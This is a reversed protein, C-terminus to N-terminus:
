MGFTFKGSRLGTQPSAIIGFSPDLKGNGLLRAVAFDEDNDLGNFVSHVEDVGAVIIRGDPQIALANAQQDGYGTFDLTQKGDGSFSKDLTGDANFRAIAFDGHDGFDVISFNDRRGAVVIKGDPQIAVTNAFDGRNGGFDATTTGTGNGGFSTDLTGNANLRAVGFDNNLMGVAVIKGDRQVALGNVNFGVQESVLKGGTGFTPDLDGASLMRRSELQEFCGSSCGSSYSSSRRNASRNM